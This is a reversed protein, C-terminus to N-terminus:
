PIAGGPGAPEPGTGICSVTRHGCHPEGSVLSSDRNPEVAHLASHVHEAQWSGNSWTFASHGRASGGALCSARDHVAQLHAVNLRQGVVRDGDGEVDRGFEGVLVAEGGPLVHVDGYRAAVADAA